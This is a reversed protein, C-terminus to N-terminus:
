SCGAMIPWGNWGGALNFNPYQYGGLCDLHSEHFIEYIMFIPNPWLDKWILHVCRKLGAFWQPLGNL